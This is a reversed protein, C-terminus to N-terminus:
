ALAQVAVAAAAQQWRCPMCMCVTLWGYVSVARLTCSMDRYIHEKQHYEAPAHLCLVPSTLM